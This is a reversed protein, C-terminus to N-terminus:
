FKNRKILLGCITAGFANAIFDNIDASRDTFITGQLIELLGGYAICILVITLLRKKNNASNWASNSLFALVFFMSAHVFKDFSILELWSASPIDKGPIGCLIAIFFAWLIAPMLKKIQM